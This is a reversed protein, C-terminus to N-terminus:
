PTNMKKFKKPDNQLAPEDSTKVRGNRILDTTSRKSVSRKRFVVKASACSKLSERSLMSELERIVIVFCCCPLNASLCFGAITYYYQTTTRTLDYDIRM